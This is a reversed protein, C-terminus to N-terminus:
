QILSFAFLVRGEELAHLSHVSEGHRKLLLADSLQRSLSVFFSVM